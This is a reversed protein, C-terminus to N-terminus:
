MSERNLTVIVLHAPTGEEIQRRRVLDGLGVTSVSIVSFYFADLTSLRGKPELAQFVFSGCVIVPFLILLAVKINERAVSERHQLQRIHILDSIMAMAELMDLTGNGDEDAEEFAERLFQLAEPNAAGQYLQTNPQGMQGMHSHGPQGMQGM